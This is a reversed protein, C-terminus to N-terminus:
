TACRSSRQDPGDRSIRRIPVLGALWDATITV